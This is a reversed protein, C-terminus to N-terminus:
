WLIESCHNIAVACVFSEYPLTCHKVLVDSAAVIDDVKSLKVQLFPKDGCKGKIQKSGWMLVIGM